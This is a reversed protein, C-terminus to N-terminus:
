KDGAPPQNQDESKFEDRAALQRALQAAISRARATECQWYRVKRQMREQSRSIEAMVFASRLVWGAVAGTVLFAMALNATV